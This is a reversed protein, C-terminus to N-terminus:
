FTEMEFIGLFVLWLPCLPLLALAIDRLTVDVNLTQAPRKQCSALIKWRM